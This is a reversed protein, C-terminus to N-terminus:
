HLPERFCLYVLDLLTSFSRQYNVVERCMHILSLSIHTLTHTKHAGYIYGRAIFPLSSIMLMYYDIKM